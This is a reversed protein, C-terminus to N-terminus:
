LTKLIQQQCLSSDKFGGYEITNLICKCFTYTPYNFNFTGNNVFSMSIMLSILMPFYSGPAICVNESM